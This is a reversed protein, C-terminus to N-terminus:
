PRGVAFYFVESQAATSLNSLLTSEVQPGTLGNSRVVVQRDNSGGFYGLTLTVSFVASFPVTSDYVITTVGSPLARGWKILIGSPLMSWGTTNSGPASLISLSSATAPIQTVTAQNTKNVWLENKSTPTYASAYLGVEGASFAGVPPTAAQDPMTVFKHKGSNADAFNYHNVATWNNIGTFNALIQPQTQDQDETAAPIAPYYTIAM